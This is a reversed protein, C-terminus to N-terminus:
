RGEVHRWRHHRNRPQAPQPRQGAGPGPPTRRRGAGVRTAAVNGETAAAVLDSLSAGPLNPRKLRLMHESSTYTELCGRSGCRCMPGQEDVTLHGLEGATGDAGHFLQNDIILRSLRAPTSDSTRNMTVPATSSM